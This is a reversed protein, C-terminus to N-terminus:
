VTIYVEYKLINKTSSNDDHINQTNTLTKIYIVQNNQIIDPYLTHKNMYTKGSGEDHIRAAIARTFSNM